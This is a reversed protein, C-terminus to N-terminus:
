IVPVRVAMPAVGPRPVQVTVFAGWVDQLRQMSKLWNRMKNWWFRFCPLPVMGSCVFAAVCVLCADTRRKSM